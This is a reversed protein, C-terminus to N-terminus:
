LRPTLWALVALPTVWYVSSLHPAFAVRGDPGQFDVLKEQALGIQKKELGAASLALVAWATADPQTIGESTASFGGDAVERDLITEIAKNISDLIKMAM